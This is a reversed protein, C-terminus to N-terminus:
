GALRRPSLEMVQRCEARTSAPDDDRVTYRREMLSGITLDIPDLCYTGDVGFLGGEVEFITTTEGTVSDREVARRFHGPKVATM